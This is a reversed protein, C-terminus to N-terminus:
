KINDGEIFKFIKKWVKEDQETMKIWNWSSRFRECDEPTKFLKKKMGKQLEASMDSLLKVGEDSYNPNHKKGDLLLFEVNDSDKFCEYLTDFHFEKKVTPDDASTIYLIRTGTYKLTRRADIISYMPHAERELKMVAPRYFKLIGTFFQEIIREPSVFGSLVTCSDIDKHLASINLAAFGGWSHGIVSIRADKYEDTSRLTNIAHDLDCLSQSFGCVSEGGSEMCGTHDYTFVTYGCKAILEIERMYAQHGNGMGHDFVILRDTAPTSYYYFYGQLKQGSNGKFDFATRCLGPFDSVSFYSLLPNGDYRVRVTKKYINLIQKEFIM